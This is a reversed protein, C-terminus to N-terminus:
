KTTYLGLCDILLCRRLWDIGPKSPLDHSPPREYRRGEYVATLLGNRLLTLPIVNIGKGFSIGSGYRWYLFPGVSSTLPAEIKLATGEARVVKANTTLSAGDVSVPLGTFTWPITTTNGPEGTGAVEMLAESKIQLEAPLDGWKLTPPFSPKADRDDLKGCFYLDDIQVPEAYPAYVLKSTTFYGVEYRVEVRHILQDPFVAAATVQVTIGSAPPPLPKVIRGM